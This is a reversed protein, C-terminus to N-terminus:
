FVRVANSKFSVWVPTGPRLSQARVAEHTLLAHLRLGADVTVLIEGGHEALSLVTGQLVNRMSSALPAESLVVHAPDIAIRHGAVVHDPVYVLGAGTDFVHRTADLTGRYRNTPAGPTATGNAVDITADALAFAVREDHTTFVVARAGLARFDAILAELGAGSAADLSGFPEDLLLVEPALVLTRALAVRQAEGGSLERAARARLALVGLRDLTADARRLAEARAVGRIALALLLNDRVSRDFLYPQQAVLGVRRAFDARRAATVEQRAYRLSGQAPALLFALALLLTSKGAGNGGLLVTIADDAIDLAPLRLVEHGGRALSIGHLAYLAM